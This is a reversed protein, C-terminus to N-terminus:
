TKEGKLLTFLEEISLAKSYYWGQQLYVGNHILYAAQEKTEVGEAIIILNLGKAMRIIADNLSETIANSGIAQVFLKDIKLYNFPFHQLYSISAHGTGYDDVALSFEAQRLEQMKNIFITDNQDLLERETIELIIQNPAIHYKEVLQNFHNFFTPALFHLASINFALHFDSYHELLSKTEKFAIEIIQLTIPVILGTAEAEVIFFDPMIIQSDENEWRLLIEVGSFRGKEYNFLPQYVPYFEKNKIALKIMGQLSYHKTMINKILLYLIFSCVLIVVIIITQSYLFNRFATKSNEFVIISISNISQLQEIAFIGMSSNPTQIKSNESLVWNPNKDTHEMRLINKKELDSYLIIASAKDRGTKLENQIISAVILISIYYNGMKQQILYIPQDFLSFSYPGLITRTRTPITASIPLLNKSNPLTSCFLQNNDSIMVGSIKPNNLIIHELFPHLDSKCEIFSKGYVPLAYIEQFLDEVFGDIKNSLSIAVEKVDKYTRKKNLDWNIYFAIILVGIILLIWISQFKKYIFLSLKHVRKSM